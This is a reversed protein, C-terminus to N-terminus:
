IQIIFNNNWQDINYLEQSNILDVERFIDEVDMKAYRHIVQDEFLNAYQFSPIGSQAVGLIDGMGRIKMDAESIIFGDQEEEMIKLREKGQDTQPQGILYCYSQLDSRGVRGRLQHLQALGFREASQIVIMTANPVDVGVEVMTTAVLINIENRKFDDMIIQQQDKPVQGHLAGVQYDPFELFLQDVKARVNEIDELAESEDILPLVYYVQHGKALEDSMADYVGQIKGPEVLKTIITKRGKPMQDITSVSMDGFVTQALSRPIPTATMQLVNMEQDSQNKDMLRQRQNVGFRHQEDIIVLGLNHYYLNDQILAHTGIVIRIAGSKIRQYIDQKEKNPVNATLLEARLGSTEFLNNFNLWHQQALIETPAMLAVQHGGLVTGLMAIFAVITKGSGVDGQMMRRMPYSARLDYIIENVATKQAQTLEFPLQAIYKQLDKNDYSLAIGAQGQRSHFAQHLQWQYAFFELYIIKREGQRLGEEDRPFHMQYLADKLPLFRYKENIYRPLIEPINDGLLEFAQQISRQILSQKLGKTTSYIPDFNGAEGKVNIRKMGLLSQKSEQWKGYIAVEQGFEIQKALYPQNFFVVSIITQEDISMRFQLRSKRSGFYSVSAPSIVRGKLTVQEGDLLTEVARAQIDNFRFPFHFLLDRLTSVGIQNFRQYTTPGIGKLQDISTNWDIVEM